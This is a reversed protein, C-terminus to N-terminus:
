IGTRRFMKELDDKTKEIMTPRGHPCTYPNDCDYLQEVLKYQENLELKDGQKEAARCAMRIIISEKIESVENFRSQSLEDLVDFILEKNQRRGMILPITRIIFSNQGFEEIEFGFKKFLDLQSKLLIAHSANLDITLPSLLEQTVPEKGEYLAMFKEYLIREHAAHQDIILFGDNTEAIIYCNHISGLLKMNPLKSFEKEISKQIPNLTKQMEPMSFAKEPIKKEKDNIIERLINQTFSKEEPTSFLLDNNEFTNKIAEFITNYLIDEISIRIEKKTPHVNVDIKKNDLEINLIVIPHRNIFLLTHYADYIANSITRNFIYRKNVYVSQQVKDARTLSPKSIFGTISIDNKKFNVEILERAVEAGYISIINGLMDSKPANLVLKDNNYLKFSIEPHILAYREIIDAILRFENAHTSLYKLRAPQNFFLNKVEIITGDQCAIPGEDIIQGGLSEVFYGQNFGKEKSLIKTKSVSAISALAEGRFGLTGIDFLDQETSIKSTAHRELSLATDREDMGSGNDSVKILTKGGDIIEVSILDSNADISNEILEKVVSAPNEVVEGAAIKTILESPLKNIKGM